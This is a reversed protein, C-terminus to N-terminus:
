AAILDKIIALDEDPIPWYLWDQGYKYPKGDLDVKFLKAKKLLECAKTYDFRGILHEKVYAEQQPTGIHMGNLHYTQWLRYITQFKENAKFFPLISDLCQGGTQCDTKTSNWITGSISLEPGKETDRLEIEIEVENIKRGTYNFDIKGFSITRKM